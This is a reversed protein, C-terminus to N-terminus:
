LELFESTDRESNSLIISDNKLQELKLHTSNSIKPVLAKRQALEIM